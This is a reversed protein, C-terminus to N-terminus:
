RSNSARGSESATQDGPLGDDAKRLDGGVDIYGDGAPGDPDLGAARVAYEEDVVHVAAEEATLQGVADNQLEGVMQDESDEAMGDEQEYLGAAIEDEVVLQDPEERAARSAVTDPTETGGAGYAEAGWPKEPPMDELSIGEAGPSGASAEDFPDFQEAQSQEDMAM